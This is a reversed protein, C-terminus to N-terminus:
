WRVAGQRATGFPPFSELVLGFHERCLASFQEETEIEYRETITDGQSVTFTHDAITIHGGTPFISLHPCDIFPSQPHTECYYNPMVFDVEYQPTEEFAFVTRWDEGEKRQWFVWGLRMDRTFRYECIGDSQVKGEALELAYRPSENRVGADALYSVGDFDVRLVRHRRLQPPQGPFVFRSAYSTVRYGLALLLWNLLGNVEFCYGGRRRVIMKDYLKAGDLSLPVGLLIDLNEYPIHALHAQQIRKLNEITPPLGQPLELRDLYREVESPGLQFQENVM